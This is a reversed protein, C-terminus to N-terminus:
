CAITAYDDYEGDTAWVIYFQDFEDQGIYFSATGQVGTLFDQGDINVWGAVGGAATVAHDYYWLIDYLKTGPDTAYCGYEQNISLHVLRCLVASAPTRPWSIPRVRHEQEPVPKGTGFQAQCRPDDDSPQGPTPLEPLPSETPKPSPQSRRRVSTTLTPSVRPGVKARLSM